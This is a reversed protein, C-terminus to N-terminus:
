NATQISAEEQWNGIAGQRKGGEGEEEIGGWTKVSIHKGNKM